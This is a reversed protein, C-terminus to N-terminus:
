YSGIEEEYRRREASTAKRASIIRWADAGGDAIVVYIPTALYESLPFSIVEFRQEGEEHLEDFVQVDNAVAQAAMEFSIGDHDHINSEAKEEDWSFKFGHFEYCVDKGM